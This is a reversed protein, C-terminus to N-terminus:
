LLPIAIPTAEEIPAHSWIGHVGLRKCRNCDRQVFVYGVRKSKVEEGEGMMISNEPEAAASMASSASQVSEVSRRRVQKSRKSRRRGEVSNKEQEGEGELPRKLPKRTTM